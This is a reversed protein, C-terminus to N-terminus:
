LGVNWRNDEVVQFGDNRRFCFVGVDSAGSLMNLLRKKTLPFTVLELAEQPDAWIVETSEESTTLRGSVYKAIYDINVM